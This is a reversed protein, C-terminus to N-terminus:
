VVSSRVTQPPRGHGEPGVAGEEAEPTGAEPAAGRRLVCTPPLLPPEPVHGRVVVTSRPAVTVVSRTSRPLPGQPGEPEGVPGLSKPAPRSIGVRLGPFGPATSALVPGPTRTGATSTWRGAPPATAVRAVDTPPGVVVATGPTESGAVTPATAGRRTATPVHPTESLLIVLAGAPGPPTAAPCWQPGVVEIAAVVEM